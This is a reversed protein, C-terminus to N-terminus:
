VADMGDLGLTDRGHGTRGPFAAHSTFQGYFDPCIGTRIGVGDPDVRVHVLQAVPVPEVGQVRM